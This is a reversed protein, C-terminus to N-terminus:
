RQMCAIAVSVWRALFSVPNNTYYDDLLDRKRTMRVM